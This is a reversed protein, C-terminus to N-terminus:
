PHCIWSRTKVAGRSARPAPTVPSLPPMQSFLKLSWPTIRYKGLPEKGHHCPLVPPSPHDAPTLVFAHYKMPPAGRAERRIGEVEPVQQGGRVTSLGLTRLPRRFPMHVLGLPV